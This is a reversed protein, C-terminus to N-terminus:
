IESLSFFYYFLSCNNNNNQYAFKTKDISLATQNLVIPYNSEHLRSLKSPYFKTATTTKNDISSAPLSFLSVCSM